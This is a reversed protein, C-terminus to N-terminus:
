TYTLYVDPVDPVPVTYGTLNPGHCMELLGTQDLAASFVDIAHGNTAARKALEEYHKSAKKLHRRTRFRASRLHLDISISSM